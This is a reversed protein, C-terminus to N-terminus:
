FETEKKINNNNIKKDLIYQKYEEFVEELNLARNIKQEFKYGNMNNLKKEYEDILKDVKDYDYINEDKLKDEVKKDVKDDNVINDDNDKHTNNAKNNKNVNNNEIINIKEYKDINLNYFDNDRQKIKIYLEDIKLRFKDGNKSNQLIKNNEDTYEYSHKPSQDIGSIDNIINGNNENQKKNNEDIESIMQIINTIDDDNNTINNYDNYKNYDNQIKIEDKYEDEDKDNEEFNNIKDKKEVIM